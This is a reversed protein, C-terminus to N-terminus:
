PQRRLQDLAQQQASLKPKDNLSASLWKVVAFVSPSDFNRQVYECAITTEESTAGAYLLESVTKGFMLQETRTRPNGFFEVLVDFLDDKPTRARAKPEREADADPMGDFPEPNNMTGEGRTRGDYHRLCV